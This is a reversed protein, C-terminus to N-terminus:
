LAGNKPAIAVASNGCMPMGVEYYAIVGLLYNLAPLHNLAM